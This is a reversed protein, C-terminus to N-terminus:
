CNSEHLLCKLFWLTAQSAKPLIKAKSFKNQSIKLTANWLLWHMCYCSCKGISGTRANPQTWKTSKMEQGECPDYSIVIHVNTWVPFANLGAMTFFVNILSIPSKALDFRHKRHRPICDSQQPQSLGGWLQQLIWKPHRAETPSFFSVLLVVWAGSCLLLTLELLKTLKTPKSPDRSGKTDCSLERIAEKNLRIENM